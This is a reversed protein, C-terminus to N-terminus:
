VRRKQKKKRKKRKSRKTEESVKPSPEVVVPKSKRKKTARRPQRRTKPFKPNVPAKDHLGPHTWTVTEQPGIQTGTKDMFGVILTNRGPVIGNLNVTGLALKVPLRNGRFEFFIKGDEPVRFSTTTWSVQKSETVENQVPKVIQVRLSDVWVRRNLQFMVEDRARFIMRTTRRDELVVTANKIGGSLGALTVNVVLSGDRRRQGSQELVNKLPFRENNVYLIHQRLRTEAFNGSAIILNKSNAVCINRAKESASLHRQGRCSPEEIRIWPGRRLPKKKPLRPRRESQIDSELYEFVQKRYHAGCAIICGIVVVFIAQYTLNRYWRRGSNSHRKKKLKDAIYQATKKRGELTKYCFEEQVEKETRTKKVKKKENKMELVPSGAVKACKKSNPHYEHQHYKNKPKSKRNEIGEETREARLKQETERKAKKIEYKSLVVFEFVDNKEAFTVLRQTKKKRHSKSSSPLKKGLTSPDRLISVLQQPETSFHNPMDSICSAGVSDERYNQFDHREHSVRSRIISSTGVM